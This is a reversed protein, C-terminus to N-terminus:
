LETEIRTEEKEKEWGEFRHASVDVRLLFREFTQFASFSEALRSRQGHVLDQVHLLRGVLTRHAAAAEVLARIEFRVQERVGVDLRVVADGAALYESPITVEPPVAERM